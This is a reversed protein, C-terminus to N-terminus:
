WRRLLQGGLADLSDDEIKPSIRAADEILTMGYQDCLGAIAGIDASQGYLHVLIVARPLTGKRRRDCLAM